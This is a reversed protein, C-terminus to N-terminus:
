ISLVGNRVFTRWIVPAAVAWFAAVATPATVRVTKMEAAAAAQVLEGEDVGGCGAIKVGDGPVDAGRGSAPADVPEDVALVLALVLALVDALADADAVFVAVGLGEAVNVYAGGLLALALGLALAKTGLPAGWVPPPPVAPSCSPRSKPTPPSATSPPAPLRQYRRM